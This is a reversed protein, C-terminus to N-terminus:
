ENLGSTLIEVKKDFLQKIYDTRFILNASFPNIVFGSAQSNKKMLMAYDDFTMVMAKQGAEKLYTSVEQWDTFALFYNEKKDNTIMNIELKSDEKVRVPMLFKAKMVTEDIVVNKTQPTDNEKMQRIAEVLVINTIQTDRGVLRNANDM